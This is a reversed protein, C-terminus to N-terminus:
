PFYRYIERRHLCRLMIVVGDRVEFGLRYDGVRLRYFGPHGSMAAVNSVAQLTEAKAVEALAEAIRALAAKDRISHTDKQFSKATVFKV